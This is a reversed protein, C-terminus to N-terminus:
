DPLVLAPRTSAKLVHQLLTEDGRDGPQHGVIVMDHEQSRRGLVHVVDGEIIEAECAIGVAMGAAISSELAAESASRAASAMETDRAHKYAGAGPPVVERPAIRQVDVVVCAHLEARLNRALAASHEIVYTHTPSPKVAVLLSRFM